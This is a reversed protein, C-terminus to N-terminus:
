KSFHYKKDKSRNNAEAPTSDISLLHKFLLNFDLKERIITEGKIFTKYNADRLCVLMHKFFYNLFSIRSPGIDKVEKENALQLQSNMRSFSRGLFNNIQAQSNFLKICSNTPKIETSCRPNNLSNNILNQNLYFLSYKQVFLSGFMFILKMVGGVNAALSQIKTYTRSYRIYKKGFYFSVTAFRINKNVNSKIDIETSDLSLVSETNITEFLWGYDSVVILEVINYIYNKVIKPDIMFYNNKLGFAFPDVYRTPNVDYSQMYISMFHNKVLILSQDENCVQTSNLEQCADVLINFYYVFTSDWLGGVKTNNFDICFHNKFREAKDLQNPFHRSQCNNPLITNETYDISGDSKYEFSIFLLKVVMLSDDRIISSSEDEIGFAITFNSNDIYYVPYEDYNGVETICSPNVRLYFDRGFIGFLVSMVTCLVIIVAGGFRTEYKQNSNIYLKCESGLFDLSQLM